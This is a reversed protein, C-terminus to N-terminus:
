RPLRGGRGWYIRPTQGVSGSPPVAYKELLYSMIRGFVPGGISGGGGNNKPAQVVVYVSFRPKDAPAFGAFSATFTGNYCGCKPGVRQATGTKGAVRYGPVAAAAATGTLPNTVAEMMQGTLRAARPSVVRHTTTTDSGVVSGGSTTARGKVLSPAVYVGGNGITNVAAAMQVANVSLGQGFAATAHDIEAWDRWGRLLGPSEGPDGLGTRKGLGFDRLYGHMPRSGLKSAALVTGINSSRAIVGTLTLHLEDHDFWDGIVRDQVQLESPVTIRTRPTVKGADILAAATLVKQVSGPEYVDRLARSGVDEKKALSPQNPDYTPYDAVALLEGTRTDMVVASGSLGRSGQVAARLARQTYWQVDRDITLELDKGSRAPVTSNDGLPIRNGGGVEYTATGNTGSLSRDFFLEAGDGGKGAENVFGLLNAAVDDAPYSRLPDRRIDVGKFGRRDIAALVDRARTAPVRRAIYQFKTYPKRLRTLVDFYDVDLRRAIISAIESANKVTVTPDAVLMLGDVSNALPVGSRDSITGRTAPLDVTVVGEARAKAVYTAADVGQLQFLRAAFVSVVMSVLLFGIRLRMLSTGRLTQL